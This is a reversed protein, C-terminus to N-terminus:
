ARRARFAKLVKFGRRARLERQGLQVSQGPLELRAPRVSLVQLEQPELLVLLGQLALLALQGLQALLVSLVQLGQPVRRAPQVLQARPALQVSRELLVLLGLQM